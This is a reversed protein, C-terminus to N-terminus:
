KVVVGPEITLTVANSEDGYVHVDNVVIYPSEAKSWTTDNAILGGVPTDAYAPVAVLVVLVLGILQGKLCIHTYFMSLKGM